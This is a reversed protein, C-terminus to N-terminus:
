NRYLLNPEMDQAVALDPWGDDDDDWVAVGLAKGAPNYLGAKKTVDSFTGDGNNRYLASSSGQYYSPGCLHKRGLSDPCVKNLAPKWVCYNCVFLDLRGDRDYDLFAASTSFRPDGVGAKRTVDTFTGNGNNHFLHNPGVATLYLDQFGDGDYDAIAVGMGYCDVALGADKTVDTFSGDGNNRYLASYFPGNGPYGPLRSSNVLFLDLRGDNNYDLFACGSGATEATYLRGSSGNTHQFRIGATATVDTFRVVSTRAGAPPPVSSDPVPNSRLPCGSLLLALLPPAIVLPPRIM